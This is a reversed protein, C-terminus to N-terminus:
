EALIAGARGATLDDLMARFGPRITRLEVRGSPTTIKRRKWASAPRLGGGNGNGNGPTLDNEVIVRYVDWGLEAARARLRAERGDLAEENRADSLRLYLDAATVGDRETSMNLPRKRLRCHESALTDRM